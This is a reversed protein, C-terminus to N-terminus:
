RAVHGRVCEAASSAGDPIRGFIITTAHKFVGMERAEKGLSETFRVPLDIIGLFIGPIGSIFRDHFELWREKRMEKDETSTGASGVLKDYAVAWRM